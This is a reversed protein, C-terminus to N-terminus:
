YHRRRDCKGVSATDGDVETITLTDGDVDIDNGLLNANVGGVGAADVAVTLVNSRLTTGTDDVAIPGDNLGTVTVTLLGRDEGGKGDLILYGLTTIRTEGVKLDQFDAVPDFSWAGLQRVTFLGGGTGEANAFVVRDLSPTHVDTLQVQTRYDGDQLVGFIFLTDNNPDSDNALLGADAALTLGTDENTTASDDLATPADNAGSITVTLTAMASGGRGDSVAYAVSTTRTVGGPVLDHFSNGPDFIWSGDGNITFSGGSTGATAKGLNAASLAGGTTGVRAVSLTDNNPDSDNLLLDANEIITMTNGKGDTVIRTTGTAGDAVTLLNNEDAVGRDNVSTPADNAGNVTVTLTATATGGPDDTM